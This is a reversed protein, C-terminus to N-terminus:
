SKGKLWANEEELSLCKKREQQLETEMAKLQSMADTITIETKSLFQKSKALEDRLSDIIGQMTQIAQKQLENQEILCNILRIDQPDSPM